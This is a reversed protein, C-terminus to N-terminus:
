DTPFQKPYNGALRVPEFTLVVHRGRKSCWQGAEKCYKKRFEVASDEIQLFYRTIIQKNCHKRDWQQCNVVSALFHCLSRDVGRLLHRLCRFTQSKLCLFLVSVAKTLLMILFGFEPRSRFLALLSVDVPPWRSTASVVELIVGWLKWLTVNYRNLTLKWSGMKSSLNKATARKHLYPDCGTELFSTVAQGASRAKGRKKWTQESWSVPCGDGWNEAQLYNPKDLLKTM